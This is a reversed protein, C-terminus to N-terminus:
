AEAEPERIRSAFLTFAASALLLPGPVFWLRGVTTFCIGATALIGLLATARQIAPAKPRRDVFVICALALVSLLITIIGLQVPHLKNGTWEPIEAGWGWQVMGALLGLVAGVIGFGYALTVGPAARTARRKVPRAPIPEVGPLDPQIGADGGGNRRL